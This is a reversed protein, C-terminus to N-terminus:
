ELRYAAHCAVCTRTLTALAGVAPRPDGTAGSDRAAIAFRSAAAHMATGAQQMGPPMYPAVEHAGHAPLSTLGLRQEATEAAADVRGEALAQQIESLAALHDRMNALTHARLPPPFVVAERADAAAGHGMAAHGAAMAHGEPMAHGAPVADGHHHPGACGAILAAALVVGAPRLRHPFTSM